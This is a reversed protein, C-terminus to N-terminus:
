HARVRWRAMYMGDTGNTSPLLQHSQERRLVDRFDDEIRETVGVTEDRTWTCVAYTVTGGDRVLEIARALLAVQLDALSRVDVPQRRWRVEPRRRGVGLGTCPADVLVADVGNPLAVSRADGEVITVDQGLRSALERIRTARHRHLEVATVSGTPGVISALHSTKGGPGACLDIIRDGVTVAAMHVVLMSAEDQPVARGQVVAPLTRPDVAAVRVGEPAAGTPEADLDASRLEDLLEGSDGVARLTVGPPDNDAHLIAEASDPPYQDLLDNVIWDPHGTTLSLYGVLDSGRDPWALTPLSRALGRLVGNVFKAAGDARSSPVMTRALDVSTSVAARDPIRMRWLQLAGLRLVRQLDPEVEDIRRTLVQGLMWDLTGRWRLGDYALHSAFRRDRADPLEDVLLPVVHTSYAGADEVRAIARFAIRRAAIGQDTV